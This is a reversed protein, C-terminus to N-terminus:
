APAPTLAPKSALVALNNERQAKEREIQEKAAKTARPKRVPAKAGDKPNAAAKPAGRVAGGRGRGTARGRKTPGDARCSTLGYDM